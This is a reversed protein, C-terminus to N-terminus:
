KGSMMNMISSGFEKLREVAGELFDIANNGGVNDVNEGVIIIETRRNAQRGAEVKNDAVPRSMGFGKSTIRKAVVGNKILAQKVVEARKTSLEQNLQASGVNDTHGEVSIKKDSRNLVQVAKKVFADGDSKITYKGSDFLVSEDVTVEVGTKTQKVTVKKPKKANQDYNAGTTACGTILLVAILGTTMIRTM